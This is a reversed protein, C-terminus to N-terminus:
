KHSRPLITISRRSAKIGIDSIYRPFGNPLYYLIDSFYAPFDLHFNVYFSVGHCIKSFRSYFDPVFLILSFTIERMLKTETWNGCNNAWRREQILLLANKPYHDWESKTLFFSALIKMNYIRRLSCIFFFSIEWEGWVSIGM